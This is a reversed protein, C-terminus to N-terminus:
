HSIGTCGCEIRPPLDVFSLENTLFNFEGRRNWMAPPLRESRVALRIVESTALSSTIGTLPALSGLNRKPRWLRRVGGISKDEMESLTIRSCEYCASIGPTVTMGILSLHLNYGGAIVYPVEQAMCFSNIWENTIDVSPQDACNVVIEPGIEKLLASLTGADSVMAKTTNVRIAPSIKLVAARLAEVKPRGFDEARFVSRNLNSEEVIDGDVFALNQFGAHALQVAVWSGVAGCGLIAVKATRMTEFSSFVEQAPFYDGLFNLVRRFDSRDISERISRPEVVCREHLLEIFEEVRAVSAGHKKCLEALPVKGDLHKVVKLIESRVRFRLSRRTSSQFFDIVGDDFPIISVSPRVLWSEKRISQARSNM